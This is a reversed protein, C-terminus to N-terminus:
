ALPVPDDSKGSRAGITVATGFAGIKFAAVVGAYVKPFSHRDANQM